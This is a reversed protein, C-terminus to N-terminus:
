RRRTVGLSLVGVCLAVLASPAPVASSSLAADEASLGYNTRWTAYQDSGITGGGDANPDNPLTGAPLGVSDRWLTYDAADVMGDDNYDGALVSPAFPIVFLQLRRAGITTSFSSGLGSVSTIGLPSEGDTEYLVGDESLLDGAISIDVTRGSSNMNIVMVAVSGDAKVAAHVRVDDESTTTSALEDGVEALLHVAQIGYYAFEPDNNSDLVSSHLELWDVNSVGNEFFTVYEDAAFLGDIAPEYGAGDTETVFIELANADGDTRWAAISDRLGADAGTDVGPTAGHIMQPITTRPANLVGATDSQAFWPYWHAIVFDINDAVKGLGADTHSLVEDNWYPENADKRGNDNLDAYSWRYDDPPTALVAGAKITPDVAKMAEVFANVQQGYAAPSLAPNDDRDTGDYPVAYNLAYQNGGGYYGAGFTENGIEWYEVGVPDDRDIALFANTSDYVGDSQAWSRYQSPTSARLKAWYGATKWDNGEADVGLSVDSAAGYISADANAYAVWAAAEQPQGGHSPAVLKTPNLPNDYKLAGGTNLTIVTKSDTADLLNVFSGFDTKNAMWGYDGEQGWWPTFGHGVMGGDYYGRSTSFHFIDAYGGGPYRLVKIGADDLRSDLQSYASSGEYRLDNDYVSTHVGIGYEPMTAITSHPSVTVTVAAAHHAAGVVALAMVGRWVAASM